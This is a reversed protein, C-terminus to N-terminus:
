GGDGYMLGEEVTLRREAQPPFWFRVTKSRLAFGTWRRGTEADGMDRARRQGEAGHERRVVRTKARARLIPLLNLSLAGLCGM